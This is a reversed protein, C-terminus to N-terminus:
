ALMEETEDVGVVDHGLEALLASLRGTGCAADVARGAPSDALLQTIVSEDLSIIPNAAQDYAPAWEPYGEAVTREPTESWGNGPACALRRVEAEIREVTERDGVLWNRALAIGALALDLQVPTPMAYFLITEVSSALHGRGLLGPVEGARGDARRHRHGDDRAEAARDRPRDGRAGPLRPARPQRRERRPVRGLSGPQRVVHGDGAGSAGRGGRPQRGSRRRHPLHAAR